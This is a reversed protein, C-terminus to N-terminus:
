ANEKQVPFLLTIVTGQDPKSELTIEAGHLQAGHKVISLGLGTGGTEKSRSKDVRYFREFVHSQHEEPIGVGTDRVTFKPKNDQMEVTVFVRGNRKNYKIANDILNVVIEELLTRDGQVVASEGEVSVTVGLKDAVDSMKAACSQALLLLDIPQKEGAAGEDLKSLRIIDEILSLMRKSEQQIKGALVSTDEPKALGTALLEAYGSITTLPTRLEHSVNASFQRRNQEATREETVDQLLLVMGLDEGALSASVRYIRGLANLEGIGGNEKLLRMLTEHRNIEPLSKGSLDENEPAGLIRAAAPNVALVRHQEDLVVLGERLSNLITNLEAQQRQLNHMQSAIRRNQADMRRLMPALEEYVDSQLPHDLDIANFPKILSKTLPRALQSAILASILLGLALWGITGQLLSLVNKQTGAVRLIQGNQLKRALYVSTEDMTASNRSSWGTGTRIADAVETRTLHNEMQSANAENDYLVTGDTDILTVRDMFVGNQLFVVKDAQDDLLSALTDSAEILQSHLQQNFFVYMGGTFLVCLLLAISVAFGVLSWFVKSRM